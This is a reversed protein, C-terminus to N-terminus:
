PSFDTIAAQLADSRETVLAPDACTAVQELSRLKVPTAVSTMSGRGVSSAYDQFKWGNGHVRDSWEVWVSPVQFADATILGHLSSSIIFDCEAIQRATRLVDRDTLDILVSGPNSAGLERVVRLDQDVYHPVIGWRAKKRTPKAIMRAVLLGPDGLPTSDSLGLSDRTGEGRVALVHLYTGARVDSQRISGTGWVALPHFPRTLIRKWRDAATHGLLSGLGVLAARRPPAYTVPRGTAFQVVLPSLADGFNSVGSGPGRWWYLPISKM